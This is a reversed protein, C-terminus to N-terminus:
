RRVKLSHQRSALPKGAPIWPLTTLEWICILCPWALHVTASSHRPRPGARAKEGGRYPRHGATGGSPWRGAQAVIKM